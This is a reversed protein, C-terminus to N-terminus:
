VQIEGLHLAKAYLGGLETLEEHTGTEVVRGQSLYIIRDTAALTTLRHTIIFTTRGGSVKRVAAMVQKEAQADLAATPEDLLLIKPDMVIARAIAIRQRQGGSLNGGLEGVRSDYGLPLEMIFEHADALKAAAIIQEYTATPRGYRINDYITANFLLPDQQIFGIHSRLSQITLEKINVDDLYINGLTPDYFRLLLNAFSSKGAGSPGVVAIVEGPRAELEIQKLIENDPQYRFSVNEFRVKGQVHSLVLTGEPLPEKEDRLEEIRQWAVMGLKMKSIAESIKRVPTPVNIIYVLFAFMGGISLEGQIVERGGYWIIITLGIAALFEVLPIFIANMRQVKLLNEAAEQIQESFKKYEYEERVYSQVVMVSLLSQQVISTMKALTHEVLSGLRAIKRNFFSIAVIIFPLTAFTVLALQWDFYIMIMMIAIVNISEVVIDPIGLTVAQQILLLDNTFLSMIEGSPKSLFYAYDHSQLTAFMDQRMRAIMKNAAKAMIYNYFYFFVGRVFYLAVISGTIIYLFSLDNQSLAGDILIKIVIPAALSAASSLIFCLVSLFVSSFYPRIFKSWYLNVM